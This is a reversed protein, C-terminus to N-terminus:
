KSIILFEDTDFIPEIVKRVDAWNLKGNNCGPRPVVVLLKQIEKSSSYHAKARLFQAKLERASEEILKLSSPKKWEDKTPFSLLRGKTGFEPADQLYSVRNGRAKLKEALVADVGKYRDRANKAIGAGMVAKGDRKIEGNTTICIWVAVTDREVQILKGNGDQWSDMEWLNGKIELM